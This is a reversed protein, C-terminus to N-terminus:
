RAAASLQAYRDALQNIERTHVIPNDAGAKGTQIMARGLRTTSTVFGPFLRRLLPYLPRLIAYFIRLGGIRTVIGREPQIFAPRFVFKGAFPMRLIENEAKGKVRAWMLRGKESSDAGSGSLYVFTMGPNMKILSRALAVPFEYTVRHYDAESMGVSSTGLCFFCADYGAFRNEMSSYDTFDHHLVEHLKAHEFGITTRGVLLIHTVAPDDLCELLVGRGVMGTAGTLIVKM